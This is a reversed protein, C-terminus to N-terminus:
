SPRDGVPEGLVAVEVQRLGPRTETLRRRAVAGDDTVAVGAYGVGQDVVVAREGRVDVETGEAHGLSPVVERDRGPARLPVVSGSV